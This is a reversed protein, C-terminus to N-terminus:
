RILFDLCTISEQWLRNRRLHQQYGARLIWVNLDELYNMVLLSNYQEIQGNKPRFLPGHKRRHGERERQLRPCPPHSVTAAVRTGRSCQRFIEDSSAPFAEVIVGVMECRGGVGCMVYLSVSRAGRCHRGVVSIWLKAMM